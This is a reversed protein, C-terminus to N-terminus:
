FLENEYYFDDDHLVEDTTYEVEWMGGLTSLELNVGHCCNNAPLGERLRMDFQSAAKLLLSALEEEMEVDFDVINKVAEFFSECNQYMYDGDKTVHIFHNSQM